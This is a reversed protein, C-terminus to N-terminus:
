VPDPIQLSSRWKAEDIAEYEALIGASRIREIYTLKAEAGVADALNQVMELIDTQEQDTLPRGLQAEIANRAELGTIEGLGNFVLVSDLFHTVIRPPEASRIIVDYLGAM